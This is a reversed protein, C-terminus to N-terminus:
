ARTSPLSEQPTPVQAHPHQHRTLRNPNHTLKNTNQSHHPTLHKHRHPPPRLPLSLLKQLNKCFPPHFQFNKCIKAFLISPHSHTHHAPPPTPPSKFPTICSFTTSHNSPYNPSPSPQVTDKSTSVMKLTSGCQYVGGESRHVGNLLCKSEM